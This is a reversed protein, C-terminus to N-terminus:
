GRTQRKGSSIATPDSSRESTKRSQEQAPPPPRTAYRPVVVGDLLLSCLFSPPACCLSSAAPASPSPGDGCADSAGLLRAVLQAARAPRALLQCSRRPFGGYSVPCKPVLPRSVLRRAVPFLCLLPLSPLFRGPSRQAAYPLFYAAGMRARRSGGRASCRRLWLGDPHRGLRMLKALGARGRAGWGWRGRAARASVCRVPPPGCRVALAFRCSCLAPLTVTLPKREVRAGRCRRAVVGSGVVRADGAGGGGTRRLLGCCVVPPLSGAV